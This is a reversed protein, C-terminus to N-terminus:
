EKNMGHAVQGPYAKSLAEWLDKTEFGLPAQYRMNSSFITTWGEGPEKADPYTEERTIPDLGNYIYAAGM